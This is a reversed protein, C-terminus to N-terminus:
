AAGSSSTVIKSTLQLSRKSKRGSIEELNSIPTPCKMRSQSTSAASSTGTSLPRAQSYLYPKAMRGGLLLTILKQLLSKGCDKEGTFVLAQGPRRINDRLAELAVKMWGNFISLQDGELLNLLFAGLIPWAGKRPEVLNPSDLILFRKGAFELIGKAYGALSGAYEIDKSNQIANLIRDTESVIAGKPPRPNFGSEALHREIDSANLKIWNDRDNKKWWCSREPDYYIAL